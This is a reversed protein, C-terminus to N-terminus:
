RRRSGRGGRGSRGGRGGHGGTANPGDRGDPADRGGSRIAGDPSGRAGSGDRDDVRELRSLPFSYVRLSEPRAGDRTVRVSPYVAAVVPDSAPYGANTEYAAVTANQGPVSVDEAREASVDVVVVVTDTERDRARDGVALRHRECLHPERAGPPVLAFEGCSACTSAVYSPPAVNGATIEMAVRRLHKCRVGRIAHDPCTCRGDNVDVLYGNGSESHVRYQGSGIPVVDMAETRARVSRQDLDGGSPAGSPV